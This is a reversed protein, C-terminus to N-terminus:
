SSTATETQTSTDRKKIESVILPAQQLREGDSMIDLKDGYKKPLLRVMLWKRTDIKMKEVNVRANDSKDMGTIVYGANDAISLIDEAMADAAEKKARAYQEAFKENKRLWQFVTSMAPMDDEALVTRMSKGDALEVCIRDAIEDSYSSPRGNAKRPLKKTTPKTDSM